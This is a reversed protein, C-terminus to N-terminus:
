NTFIIFTSLSAIELEIQNLESHKLCKIFIQSSILICRESFMNM